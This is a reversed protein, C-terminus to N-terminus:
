SARLSAREAAANAAAEAKRPDPESGRDESVWRFSGDFYPESQSQVAGHCAMALAVIVDIKHSSKEKTIKWGRPNEKAVCGSLALRMADNPYM